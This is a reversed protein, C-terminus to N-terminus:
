RDDTARHGLAVWAPVLESSLRRVGQIAVLDNLRMGARARAVAEVKPLLYGLELPARRATLRKLFPRRHLRSPSFRAATRGSSMYDAIDDIWRGCPRAGTELLLMWEGRASRLIEGLDWSTCFRAGAADAVQSCGDCSGHDLIIVDSVLGDVAGSVLASLTQVLEAENDHTEMIVTLM